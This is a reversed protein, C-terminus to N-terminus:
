ADLRLVESLADVVSALDYVLSLDFVNLVIFLLVSVFDEACFALALLLADSVNLAAEDFFEAVVLAAVYAEVLFALKVAVEALVPAPANVIVPFRAVVPLECPLLLEVEAYAVAGTPPLAESVAVEADLLLAALPPLVDPLTPEVVLPGLADPPAAAPSEVVLEALLLVVENVPEAESFPLTFVEDFLPKVALAEEVFFAESVNPVDLAEVFENDFTAAFDDFQASAEFLALLLLEVFVNLSVDDCLMLEDFLKAVLVTALRASVFDSVLELV